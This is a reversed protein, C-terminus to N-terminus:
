VTLAHEDEDRKDAQISSVYYTSVHTNGLSRGLSSGKSQRQCRWWTVKRLRLTGMKLSDRCLDPTHSPPPATTKACALGKNLERCGVM